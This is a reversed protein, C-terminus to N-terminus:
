HNLLIVYELLKGIFNDAGDKRLARHFYFGNKNNSAYIHRAKRDNFSYITQGIYVKGNILNTAKYIIMNVGLFSIGVSSSGVLACDERISGDKPILNNINYHLNM